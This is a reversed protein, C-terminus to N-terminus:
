GSLNKRNEKTEIPSCVCTDYFIHLRSGEVDVRGRKFNFITGVSCLFLIQLQYLDM